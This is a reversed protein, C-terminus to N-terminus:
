IKSINLHSLCGNKEAQEVSVGRDEISRLLEVTTKPMKRQLKLLESTSQKNLQRLFSEFSLMQSQALKMKPKSQHVRSEVINKLLLWEKPWQDALSHTKQQEISNSSAYSPVISLLSGLM